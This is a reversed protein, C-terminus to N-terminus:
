KKTKKHNLRNKINREKNSRAWPDFSEIRTLNKDYLEKRQDPSYIRTSYYRPMPYTGDNTKISSNMSDQHYKIKRDTVYGLGIGKSMARYCQSMDNKLIYDTVYNISGPTVTGIHILGKNWIRELNKQVQLISGELNFLLAHYHLRKTLNGYEAVLYYKIDTAFPDHRLRKLFLTIEEKAKDLSDPDPYNAQDFTITVFYSSKSLKLESQLRVQWGKHKYDLCPYCKGCRVFFGTRKVYIQNVCEM